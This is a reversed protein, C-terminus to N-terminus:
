DPLGMGRIYGGEGGVAETGADSCMMSALTMVMRSPKSLAILLTEESMVNHRASSLMM